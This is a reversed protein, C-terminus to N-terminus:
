NIINTDNNNILNKKLHLLARIISHNNILEKIDCKYRIKYDNVINDIM